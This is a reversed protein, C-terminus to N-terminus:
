LIGCVSCDELGGGWSSLSCFMTVSVAYITRGFMKWSGERWLCIKVDKGV